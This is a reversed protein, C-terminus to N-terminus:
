KKKIIEARGYKRLWAFPSHRIATPDPLFLNKRHFFFINKCVNSNSSSFGLWSLNTSVKKKKSKRHTHPEHQCVSLFERGGKGYFHQKISVRVCVCVCVCIPQPHISTYPPFPPPAQCFNNTSLIKKRERDLHFDDV